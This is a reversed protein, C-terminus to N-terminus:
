TYLYVEQSYDPKFKMSDSGKGIKSTLYFSDFSVMFVLIM